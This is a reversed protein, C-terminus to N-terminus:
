EYIAREEGNKQLQKKHEAVERLFASAEGGTGAAHHPEYRLLALVKLVAREAWLLGWALYRQTLRRSAQYGQLFVEKLFDPAVGEAFSRVRGFFAGVKPRTSRLLVKGTQLEWHKVGVLATLGVISIALTITFFLVM